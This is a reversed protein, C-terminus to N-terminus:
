NNHINCFSIFWSFTIYKYQGINSFKVIFCSSNSQLATCLVYDNSNMWIPDRYLFFTSGCKLIFANMHEKNDKYQFMYRYLYYFTNTYTHMHIYIYIYIAYWKICLKWTLTCLSYLRIIMQYMTNRYTHM